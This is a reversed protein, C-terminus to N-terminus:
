KESAQSTTTTMNQSIRVANRDLSRIHQRSIIYSKHVKVFRGPPLQGEIGKLTMYSMHRRTKTHVFIYNNASEVYLIDDLDIRQMRGNCKLFIHQISQEDTEVSQRASKAWKFLKDTAMRLRQPSIPKLLYDLVALEYSELAYERYATTLIVPSDIKLLRLFDLGSMGPMNIDLFIVAPSLAHILQFAEFANGAQGKVEMYPIDSVDAALGERAAPEDDIILASLKM